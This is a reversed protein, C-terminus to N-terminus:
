ESTVVRQLVLSYDQLTVARRKADFYLRDNPNLYGVIRLKANVTYNSTPVFQWLLESDTSIPPATNSNTLAFLSRQRESCCYSGDPSTERDFGTTFIKQAAPGRYQILVATNQNTSPDRTYVTSAVVARGAFADLRQQTNLLRDEVVENNSPDKLFRFRLSVPINIKSRAEALSAQGIRDDGNPGGMFATGLPASCDVLTQTVDWSGELFIPYSPNGKKPPLQTLTLAPDSLRSLILGTSASSALAPQNFVNEATLSGCTTFAIQSVAARRSLYQQDYQLSICSPILLALMPYWLM